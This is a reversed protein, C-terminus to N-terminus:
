VSVPWVRQTPISSINGGTAIKLHSIQKDVPKEPGQVRRANLACRTTSKCEVHSFGLGTNKTSEQSRSKGVGLVFNNELVAEIMSTEGGGLLQDWDPWLLRRIRLCYNVLSPYGRVLEEFPHGPTSWLLQSLIAFASCDIDTLSDGILFNKSGLSATLATLDDRITELIENGKMRGLSQHSGTMKLSKSAKEVEGLVIASIPQDLHM